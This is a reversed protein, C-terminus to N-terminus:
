KGTRATHLAWPRSQSPIKICYLVICDCCMVRFFDGLYYRFVGGPIDILASNSLWHPPFQQLNAHSHFNGSWSHGSYGVSILLVLIHTISQYFPLTASLVLLSSPIWCPPLSFLFWVLMTPIKPHVNYQRRYSNETSICSRLSLFSFFLESNSSLVFM